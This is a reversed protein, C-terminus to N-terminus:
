VHHTVEKRHKKTYKNARIPRVKSVHRLIGNKCNLSPVFIFLGPKSKKTAVYIGPCVFFHLLVEIDRDNMRRVLDGSIKESLVKPTQLVVESFPLAGLGLQANFSLAIREAEEKLCKYYYGPFNAPAKM